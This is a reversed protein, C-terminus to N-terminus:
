VTTVIANYGMSAHICRYAFLGTCAVVVVVIGGLVSVGNSQAGIM